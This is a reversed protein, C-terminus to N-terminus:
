LNLPSNGYNRNKVVWYIEREQDGHTHTTSNLTNQQFEEHNSYYGVLKSYNSTEFCNIVPLFTKNIKLLIFIFFLRAIRYSRSSIQCKCLTNLKSMESYKLNAYSLM